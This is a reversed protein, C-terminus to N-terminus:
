LNLFFLNILSMKLLQFTDTLQSNYRVNYRDFFYPTVKVSEIRVCPVTAVKLLKFMKVPRIM